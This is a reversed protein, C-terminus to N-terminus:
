KLDNLFPSGPLGQIASDYGPQLDTKAPSDSLPKAPQVWPPVNIYDIVSATNKDVVLVIERHKGLLPYFALTQIDPYRSRFNNFIPQHGPLQSALSDLDLSRDFSGAIHTKLDRYLEPHRDIDPGGAAAEKLIKLRLQPDEPRTAYVYSPGLQLHNVNADLQSLDMNKVDSAAIVTFRDIAFAIFYPRESYITNAGYILASLQILVIVSLDFKLSPKGPKFVILTLLPGLVLDVAILIVIVNYTGEVSFYPAPYWIYFVIAFFIVLVLASIVLHTASAKYRNM